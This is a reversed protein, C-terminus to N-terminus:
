FFIGVLFNIKIFDLIQRSTVNEIINTTYRATYHQDNKKAKPMVFSFWLYFLYIKGFRKKKNRNLSKSKEHM